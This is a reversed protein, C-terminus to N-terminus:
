RIVGVSRTWVDGPELATFASVPLGHQQLAAALDEKPESWPEDTLAFTGWHLGLAEPAGCDLMIQVAEAPDVHQDKMFWRPDYAGIPLLAIDPAGFHQRIDRFIHGDGYGTDGAVYVSGSSSRIFFGCWLAMRRDGIGRASWHNAPCLSVTVDDNLGTSQWWDFEEVSTQPLSREVIRANGLPAILRPRHDAYLRKLTALDLHDYHNHTLLVADIPPLDEFVIGPPNARRPGAWSLPSARDSWVPDVLLNLGATQILVSAHGVMTIRLGSVRADPVVQKGPATEPWTARTGGFRWRLLAALSRDTTPHQPNFFREGDFHDSTPGQYYRNRM